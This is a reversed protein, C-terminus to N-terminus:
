TWDYINDISYLNKLHTKWIISLIKKVEKKDNQTWENFNSLKLELCIKRESLYLPWWTKNKIGCKIYLIIVAVLGLQIISHSSFSFQFPFLKCLKILKIKGHWWKKKYINYIYTHTYTDTHRIAPKENFLIIGKCLDIERITQPKFSLLWKM